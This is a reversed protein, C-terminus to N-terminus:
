LMWTCIHKASCFSLYIYELIPSQINDHVFMGATDRFTILIENERSTDDFLDVDRGGSISPKNFYESLMNRFESTKKFNTVSVTCSMETTELEDEEHFIQSAREAVM